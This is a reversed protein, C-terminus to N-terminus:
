ILFLGLTRLIDRPIVPVLVLLVLHTTHQDFMRQVEIEEPFVVPQRPGFFKM